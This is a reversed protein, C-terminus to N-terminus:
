WKRRCAYRGLWFGAARLRGPGAPLLQLGASASRAAPHSMAPRPPAPSSNSSPRRCSSPQAAAHGQWSGRSQWGMAPVPPKSTRTGTSSSSIRRAPQRPPTTAIRPSRPQGPRAQHKPSQHHGHAARPVEARPERRQDLLFDHKAVSFPKSNILHGRVVELDKHEIHPFFGPFGIVPWFNCGHRSKPFVIWLEQAKSMGFAGPYYQFTPQKM